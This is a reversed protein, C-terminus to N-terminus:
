NNGKYKILGSGYSALWLNGSDDEAIDYIRNSEINSNSATYTLWAGNYKTLGGEANAFWLINNHDRIINMVNKSPIRFYTKWYVPGKFYSSGGDNGALPGTGIGIGIWITNNMDYAICQTNNNPFGWWGSGGPEGTGRPASNYVDYTKWLTDAYFKTIGGGKTAFWKTGDPAISVANINNTRLPSNSHNYVEWVAGDFRAVGANKLGIWVVSNNEFAVSVVDNDPLGSNSSNYLIWNNNNLKVLGDNTCIWKNHQEDVVIKQVQNSPLPSNGTNFLSWNNNEYKILGNLSGAWITNGDAAVCTLYDSAIDIDHSSNYCVWTLTDKLSISVRSTRNSTVQTLSESPWYDTKDLTIKYQGPLFNSMTVPTVKDTLSDNISIEAGRPNSDVYIYGRMTPNSIYDFFLSTTKDKQLEVIESSDKYSKLKLTLHYSGENLYPVTDPTYYGTNRDNLFIIAGRPNSDVFLKGSNEPVPEPPTVSVEKSCSYYFLTILLSILFIISRNKM